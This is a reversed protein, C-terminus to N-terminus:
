RRPDDSREFRRAHRGHREWGHWRPGSIRGDSFWWWWWRRRGRHDNAVRVGCLAGVWFRLSNVVRPSGNRRGTARLAPDRDNKEYRASHSRRILGHGKGPERLARNAEEGLQRLVVIPRPEFRM